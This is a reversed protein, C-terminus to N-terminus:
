LFRLSRETIVEVSHPDAYPDADEEPKVTTLVDDFGQTDPDGPRGPRYEKDVNLHWKGFHGTAYGRAKLAEAITTEELPLMPAMRPTRLVAYPYPAGLIYDTIHLRAPYKGTMLGARTPSCISASAYADTFVM